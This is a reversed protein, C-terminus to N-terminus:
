INKIHMVEKTNRLKIIEELKIKWKNILLILLKNKGKTIILIM